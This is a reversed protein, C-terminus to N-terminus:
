DNLTHLAVKIVYLIDLTITFPMNEHLKENILINCFNFDEIKIIAYFCYCIRNKIDIEELKIM